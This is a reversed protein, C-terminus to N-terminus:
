AKKPKTAEISSKGNKKNKALAKEINTTMVSKKKEGDDKIKRGHGIEEPIYLGACVTFSARIAHALGVKKLMSRKKGGDKADLWLGEGTDYEDMYVVQEPTLVHEGIVKYIGVTVSEVKKNEDFHYDVKSTGGYQGTQDAIAVLGDINIIVKGDKIYLLGSRIDINSLKAMTLAQFLLDNDPEERTPDGALTNEDKAPFLASVWQKYLIVPDTGDPIFEGFQDTLAKKEAKAKTAADTQAM